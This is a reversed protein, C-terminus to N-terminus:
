QSLNIIILFLIKSVGIAKYLEKDGFKKYM